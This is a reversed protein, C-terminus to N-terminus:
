LTWRKMRMTNYVFPIRIGKSKSHDIASVIFPVYPTPSVLNINHLGM